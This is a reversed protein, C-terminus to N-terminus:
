RKCAATLAISLKHAAPLLNFCNQLSATRNRGISLVSWPRCSGSPLTTCIKIIIRGPVKTTASQSHTLSIGSVDARAVVVEEQEAARSIEARERCGGGWLAIYDSSLPKTAPHKYQITSPTSCWEDAAQRVLEFKCLVGDLQQDPKCWDFRGTHLDHLHIKAFIQM